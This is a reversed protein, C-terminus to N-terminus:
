PLAKGQRKPLHHVRRNGLEPMGLPVQPQQLELSCRETSLSWLLWTGRAKHTKGQQYGMSLWKGTCLHPKQGRPSRSATSVNNSAERQSKSFHIRFWSAKPLVWPLDSISSNPAQLIEHSHINKVVSSLTFVDTGLGQLNINPLIKRSSGSCMPEARSYILQSMESCNLFSFVRKGTEKPLSRMAPPNKPLLLLLLKPAWGKARGGSGQPPDRHGGWSPVTGTGHDCQTNLQALCQGAMVTGEQWSLLKPLHMKRNKMM